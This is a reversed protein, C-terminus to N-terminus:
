REPFTQWAENWKQQGVEHQWGECSICLFCHGQHRLSEFGKAGGYGAPIGEQAYKYRHLKPLENEGGVKKNERNRFGLPPM